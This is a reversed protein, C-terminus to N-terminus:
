AELLTAVHAAVVVSTTVDDNAGEDEEWGSLTMMGDMTGSGHVPRSGSSPTCPLLSYPLRSCSPPACPPLSCPSRSFSPPACPPRRRVDGVPACRRRPHLIDGGGIRQSRGRRGCFLNESTGSGAM